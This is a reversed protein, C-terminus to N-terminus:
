IFLALLTALHNLPPYAAVDGVRKVVENQKTDESFLGSFSPSMWEVPKGYMFNWEYTEHGKGFIEKDGGSAKGKKNVVEGDFRVPIFSGLDAVVQPDFFRSVNVELVHNNLSTITVPGQSSFIEQRKNILEMIEHEHVKLSDANVIYSDPSSLTGAMEFMFRHYTVDDKASQAFFKWSSALRKEAQANAKLFSPHSNRVELFIKRMEKPSPINNASSTDGFLNTMWRGQSSKYSQTLVKETFKDYGEVNFSTVYYIVAIAERTAAVVKSLHGALVVKDLSFDKDKNAEKATKAAEPGIALALDTVYVIRDKAGNSIVAQVENAANIALPILKNAVYEQLQSVTDFVRTQGLIDQGPNPKTLYDFAADYYKPLYENAYKIKRLASISPIYTSMNKEIILRLRYIGGQTYPILNAAIGYLRLGDDKISRKNGSVPNVANDRKIIEQNVRILDDVSQISLILKNIKEVETSRKFTPVSAPNRSAPAEVSPKWNIFQFAVFAVVLGAVGFSKWKKSM